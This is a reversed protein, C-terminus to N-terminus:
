HILSLNQHTVKLYQQHRYAIHSEHSVNTTLLPIYSTSYLIFLFDHNTCVNFVCFVLLNLLFIHIYSLFFIVFFFFFIFKHGNVEKSEARNGENLKRRRKARNKSIQSARWSHQRKYTDSVWSTRNIKNTKKKKCLNSITIQISKIKRM